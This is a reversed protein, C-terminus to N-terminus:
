SSRQRSTVSRPSRATDPKGARKARPRNNPSKEPALQYYVSLIPRSQPANPSPPEIFTVPSPTAIISDNIAAPSTNVPLRLGYNLQSVREAIAGIDLTIPYLGNQLAESLTYSWTEPWPSLFLAISAGSQRIIDAVQGPQYQGSIRVNPHRSLAADNRTYGIIHFQLPLDRLEADEICARLLDFGKSEGIAGLIAVRILDDPSALLPSPSPKPPNVTPSPHPKVEINPLGFHRKYPEAASQSPAFVKRANTLATRYHTRWSEVDGGYESFVNGMNEPLGYLGICRDCADIDLQKEECYRGHGDLFTIRPCIGLYDHLTVDYAVELKAPLDWITPPYHMTQHYHVHRTGLARIDAILNEFDALGSYVLYEPHQTSRLIWRDSRETRLILTSQQERELCAALDTVARETGGGLGHTILLFPSNIKSRLQERAINNRARALPDLHAFRAISKEYDPYLTQLTKLNKQLLAKKEGAFSVSGHHGVFVDCAAIHRWGKQSARLCYDNEEGYGKGFRRHDLQGVENIMERKLFLCFGVGTPLGVRMGKNITSCLLDLEKVAEPSPLPNEQFPIPYSALTANNSFPTVSGINSEAYAAAHLRDLWGPAVITDANLLVVDQHPTATLHQNVTRVFGLNREQEILEFGHTAQLDRLATTLLPNPSQDNIVTLTFPVAGGSALVSQICQISEKLGDHVPILISVADLPPVKRRRSLSTSPNLTIPDDHNSNKRLAQLAPEIIQTRVWIHPDDEHSLGEAAASKPRLMEALHTLSQLASQYPTYVVEIGFPNIETEALHASLVTSIRAVDGAVPLEIDFGCATGPMADPRPFNTSGTSIKCGNRYVDLHIRRQPTVEDLIWGKIRGPHAQDIHGRYRSQIVLSQSAMTRRGDAHIITIGIRHAHADFARFPLRVSFGNAWTLDHGNSHGDKVPQSWIREIVQGDLTIETELPKTAPERSRPILTGQLTGNPKLDLVADVHSPGIWYPSCALERGTLADFLSIEHDGGDLLTAPLEFAFCRTLGTEDQAGKFPLDARILSSHPVGDLTICLNIAFPFNLSHKIWGILWGDRLGDIGAEPSPHLFPLVWDNLNVPSHTALSRQISNLWDPVTSQASANGISRPNVLLPPRDEVTIMLLSPNDDSGWFAGPVILHLGQQDVQGITLFPPNTETCGPVRRISCSAPHGANIESHELPLLLYVWGVPGPIVAKPNRAIIEAVSILRGSSFAEPYAVLGDILSLEITRGLNADATRLLQEFQCSSLTKIPLAQRKAGNGPMFEIANIKGPGQFFHDLFLGIWHDSHRRWALTSFGLNQCAISASDEFASFQNIPGDIIVLGDFRRCRLSASEPESVDCPCM